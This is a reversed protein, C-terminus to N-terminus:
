LAVPQPVLHHHPTLSLSFTFTAGQGSKSEVWIDQGHAALAMKCFALGLGSGGKEMEGVFKDFIQAQLQQSIGSGSDAVTILATPPQTHPVATAEIVIEGGAPTFKISNDILNQLVRELLDADAWVPALRDPIHRIIDLEKDAIRAAQTELVTTVLDALSVASLALPMQQAELREMDLIKNVRELMKETNAITMEIMKRIEPTAQGELDTDLMQLAFISNSLPARLDHIMTHTIDHRMKALNKQETVDDVILLYGYLKKQWSHRPKLTLEYTRPPTLRNQIVEVKSELVQEWKGALQPYLSDLTQGLLSAATQGQWRAAVDNAYVVQGAEDVVVIGQNLQDVNIPQFSTLMRWWHHRVKYRFAAPARRVLRSPGVWIISATMFLLPIILFRM